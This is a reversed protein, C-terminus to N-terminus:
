VSTSTTASQSFSRNQCCNGGVNITGTRQHTSSLEGSGIGPNTPVAWPACGTTRLFGGYSRCYLFGYYMGTQYGKCGGDYEPGSFRSCRASCAEHSTAITIKGLGWNWRTGYDTYGEPCYETLAPTPSTSPAQYNNAAVTATQGEPATAVTPTGGVVIAVDSLAPTEPVDEVSNAFQIVAKTGSQRSRLGSSGSDAAAVYSNEILDCMTSGVLACFKEQVAQAMIAKEDESLAGYDVETFDYSAEFYVFTPSMSPSHSPALFSVLPSRTPSRSPTNGGNIRTSSRYYRAITLKNDSIERANDETDTGIAANDNGYGYTPNSFMAVRPCSGAVNQPFCPDNDRCGYAMISRFSGGPDRHGFGFGYGSCKCDPDSTCPSSSGRDHDCGMNHGLEHGYSYYGTACSYSTASYMLSKSPGMYALGCYSPDQIIVVVMDAAYESRKDHLGVLNGERADNLVESFGREVYDEDRYAHALNLQLDIGSDAYADNSEENALAILARMQDESQQTVTCDNPLRANACEAQRTWVVMVDIVSGDDLPDDAGPADELDAEGDLVDTPAMAHGEPAFDAHNIINVRTNGDQAVGGFQYVVADEVDVLSGYVLEGEVGQFKIFKLTSNGSVGKWSPQSPVRGVGEDPYTADRAPARAFVKTMGNMNIAIEDSALDFLDRTDLTTVAQRTVSRSQRMELTARRKRPAEGAATALVLPALLLAAIHSIKM